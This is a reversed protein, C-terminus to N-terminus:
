HLYHPNNKESVSKRQWDLFRVYSLTATIVLGALAICAVYIHFSRTIWDPIRVIEWLALIVTSLCALCWGAALFFNRRYTAVTEFTRRRSLEERGQAKQRETWAM